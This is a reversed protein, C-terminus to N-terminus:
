DERITNPEKVVEGNVMKGTVVARTSGESRVAMQSAASEKIKRLDALNEIKPM